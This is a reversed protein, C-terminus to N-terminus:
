RRRPSRPLIPLVELPGLSNIEHEHRNRWEKLADPTWVGDLASLLESVEADHYSGTKQEVYWVIQSIAAVKVPEWRIQVHEPLKEVRDAYEYLAQPWAPIERFSFQTRMPPLRFEPPAVQRSVDIPTASLSSCSPDHELSKILDAVDRIKKAAANAQRKTLRRLEIRPSYSAFALLRRLLDDRDAGSEVLLDLRAKCNHKKLTELVKKSTSDALTSKPSADLSHSRTDKARNM